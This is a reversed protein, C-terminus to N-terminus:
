GLLTRVVEVLPVPYDGVTLSWAFVVLAVALVIVTVLVSRWDLRASVPRRGRTRVVLDGNPARTGRRHPAPADLVATM